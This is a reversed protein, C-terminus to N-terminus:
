PRGGLLIGDGTVPLPPELKEKLESADLAYLPSIEVPVEQGGASAPPLSAGAEAIWRAYLRTLARQATAPSCDPGSASKVPSFEEDRDVEVLGARRAFHISDFVFAVFRVSNPQSPRVLKGKKTLYPTARELAHFPLLVGDQRMRALFEMSFAHVGINAAWLALSGDDARAEREEAGLESHEIVGFTGNSLCFLGVREGPDTRRVCKSTVEYQDKIHYGLFVPDGISALPNDVHFYLIHRVGSSELAELRGEELLRLLIGGHGNPSLVMRGPASLLIRGRRDVVPLLDQESISV